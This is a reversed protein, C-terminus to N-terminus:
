QESELQRAAYDALSRVTAFDSPELTEPDFEFGLEDELKMLLELISTSDFGLDDFLRTDATISDAERNRMEALAAIVTQTIRAPATFPEAHTGM